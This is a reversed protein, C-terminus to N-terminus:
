QDVLGDSLKERFGWMAFRAAKDKLPVMLM